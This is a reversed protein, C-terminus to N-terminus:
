AYALRYKQDRPYEAWESSEFYQLVPAAAACSFHRALLPDTLRKLFSRCLENFQRNMSVHCNNGFQDQHSLDTISLFLGYVDFHKNDIQTLGAQNTNLASTDRAMAIDAGAM